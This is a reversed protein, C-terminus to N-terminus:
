STFLRPFWSGGGGRASGPEVNDSGNYVTSEIYMRCELKYRGNLGGETM